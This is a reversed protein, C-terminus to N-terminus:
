GELTCDRNLDLTLKGGIGDADAYVIDVTAEDAAWLPHANLLMPRQEAIEFQCGRRTKKGDIGTTELVAVRLCAGDRCTEGLELVDRGSPSTFRHKASAGPIAFWVVVLVVSIVVATGIWFAVPSIGTDDIRAM